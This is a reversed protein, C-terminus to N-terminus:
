KGKQKSYIKQFFIKGINEVVFPDKCEGNAINKVCQQASYLHNYDLEKVNKCKCGHGVSLLLNKENEIVHDYVCTGLVCEIYTACFPRTIEQNLMNLTFKAAEDATIQGCDIDDCHLDDYTTHKPQLRVKVDKKPKNM